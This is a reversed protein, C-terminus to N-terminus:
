TPWQLQEAFDIKGGARNPFRVVKGDDTEGQEQSRESFVLVGSRSRLLRQDDLLPSCSDDLCVDEEAEASILDGSEVM